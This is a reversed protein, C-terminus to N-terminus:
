FYEVNIMMKNIYKNNSWSINSVVVLCELKKDGFM